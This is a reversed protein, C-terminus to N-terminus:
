ENPIEVGECREVVALPHPGVQRLRQLNVQIFELDRIETCVEPCYVDDIRDNGFFHHAVRQRFFRTPAERTSHM